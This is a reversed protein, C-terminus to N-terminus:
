DDGSYNRYGNYATVPGYAVDDQGKLYYALRHPIDKNPNRMIAADLEYSGTLDPTRRWEKPAADHTHSGKPTRM